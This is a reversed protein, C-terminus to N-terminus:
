RWLCELSRTMWLSRFGLLMRRSASTFGLIDSKPMALIKPEFSVCAFVFLTTPVYYTYRMKRSPHSYWCVGYFRYAHASVLHIMKNYRETPVHCRLISWLTLERDLRIDETKTNQEQLDYSSLSTCTKMLIPPISEVKQTMHTYSPSIFM